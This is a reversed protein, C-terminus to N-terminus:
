QNVEVEEDCNLKIIVPESDNVYYYDLKLSTGQRDPGMLGDRDHLFEVMLRKDGIKTNFNLAYIGMETNDVEAYKPTELIGGIIDPHNTEARVVEIGYEDTANSINVYIDPDVAKCSTFSESAFSSMSIVATMLFLLKKM